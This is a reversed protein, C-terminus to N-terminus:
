LNRGDLKLIKYQHPGTKQITFYVLSYKKALGNKSFMVPVTAVYLESNIFKVTTKDTNFDVKFGGEEVANDEQPAGTLAGLTEYVDKTERGDKFFDLLPQTGSENSFSKKFSRLYQVIEDSKSSSLNKSRIFLICCAALIIASAAPILFPKIKM